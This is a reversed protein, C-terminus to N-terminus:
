VSMALGDIQFFERLLGSGDEEVATIIFVGFHESATHLLLLPPRRGQPPLPWNGVGSDQGGVQRGMPWEKLRVWWCFIGETM